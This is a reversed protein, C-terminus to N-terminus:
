AVNNAESQKEAWEYWAAVPDTSTCIPCQCANGDAPQPTYTEPTATNDTM